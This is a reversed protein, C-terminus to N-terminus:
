REKKLWKKFISSRESSISAELNLPPDLTLIIRSKMSTQVDKIASETAIIQRNVRFFQEPNLMQEIKDLSLDIPYNKGDKTGIFTMKDKSYFYAIDQILLTILKNGLKIVFRDKYKQNIGSSFHQLNEQHENLHITKLKQLAFSLEEQKIPKLLYDVSNVKFADLVYEDYATVFIVPCEIKTHKFIEFSNGDSLHIDMFLVDPPPHHSFWQLATHISDGTFLIDIGPDIDLLMKKLREVAPTEDELLVVKM